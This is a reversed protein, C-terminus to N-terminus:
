SLEPAQQNLSSMRSQSMSLACRKMLVLRQKPTPPFHETVSGCKHLLLMQAQQSSAAVM